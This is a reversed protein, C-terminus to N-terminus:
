GRAIIIIGLVVLASGVFKQVSVGENFLVVGAVLMLLYNLSMFPFAYSIEFRTMALLWSVGSLFTAVIGTMVWPNILLRLVFMAQEFFGAPVPGAASVQWRMVLQSYVAFLVTAFIFLHDVPRSV